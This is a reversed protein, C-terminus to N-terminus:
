ARVGKPPMTVNNLRRRALRHRCPSRWGLWLPYSNLGATALATDADAAPLLEEIDGFLSTVQDEVLEEPTSQPEIVQARRREGLQPDVVRPHRGLRFGGTGEQTPWARGLTAQSPDALSAQDAPQEGHHDIRALPLVQVQVDVLPLQGPDDADPAPPGLL